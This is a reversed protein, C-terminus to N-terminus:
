YLKSSLHQPPPSNGGPIVRLDSDPCDWKVTQCCRQPPRLAPVQECGFLQNKHLSFDKAFFSFPRERIVCPHLQRPFQMHLGKLKKTMYM